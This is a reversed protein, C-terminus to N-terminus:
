VVKISDKDLTKDCEIRICPKGVFDIYTEATYPRVVPSLADIFQAYAREGFSLKTAQKSASDLLDDVRYLIANVM